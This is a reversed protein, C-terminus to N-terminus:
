EQHDLGQEELSKSFACDPCLTKGNYESAEEETLPSGCDECYYMNEEENEDGADNSNVENYCDECYTGYSGEYAKDTNDIGTGCNDCRHNNNYCSDCVRIHGPQIIHATDGDFKNDCENCTNYCTKCLGRGDGYEYEIEAENPCNYCLGIRKQNTEEEVEETEEETQEEAKEETTEEKETSEEVKTKSETDEQVESNTCGGVGLSLMIAMSILGLIKKIKIM